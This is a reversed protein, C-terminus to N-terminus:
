VIKLWVRKLHDHVTSNSVNLREAIERTTIRRNADILAQTKMLKLQGELVHHMKLMLIAPDFNQLGTKGSANQWYMKEMCMPYNKEQKFLMKVKEITFFTFYASFAAKWKRYKIPRWGFVVAYFWDFKKWLCAKSYWSDFYIIRSLHSTPQSFICYTRQQSFVFNSESCGICYNYM